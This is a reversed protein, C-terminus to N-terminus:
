KRVRWEKLALDFYVKNKTLIQSVSAPMLGTRRAITQIGYRKGVACAIIRREEEEKGQPLPGSGAIREQGQPLPGGGAIPEQQPLPGGGAITKEQENM